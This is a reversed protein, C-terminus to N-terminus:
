LLNPHRETFPRTPTIQPPKKRGLNLRSVVRKASACTRSFDYQPAAARANRLILRYSRNGETSFRRFPSEDRTVHAVVFLPVDNGNLFRSEGFAPAELEYLERALIRGNKRCSLVPLNEGGRCAAM